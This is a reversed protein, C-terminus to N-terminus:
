GGPAKSGSSHASAGSASPADLFGAEGLYQLLERALDQPQRQRGQADYAELVM